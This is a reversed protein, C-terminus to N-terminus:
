VRSTEGERVSIHVGEGNEKRSGGKAERFSMKESEGLERLCEGLLDFREYSLQTNLYNM